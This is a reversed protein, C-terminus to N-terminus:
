LEVSAHSHMYKCLSFICMPQESTIGVMVPEKIKQPHLKNTSLHCKKTVPATLVQIHMCFHVQMFQFFIKLACSRTGFRLQHAVSVLLFSFSFCFKEVKM